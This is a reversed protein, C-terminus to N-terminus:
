PRWVMHSPPPWALTVMMSRRQDPCSGPRERPEGGGTPWGGEASRKQGVAEPRGDEALRRRGGPEPDGATEPPRRRPSDSKRNGPRAGIPSAASQARQYSPESPLPAQRRGPGDDDPTTRRQGDAEPRGDEALRRRGGPEPDGATEPPRRRPSDSKRNGPRAGVPSAASQARQWSPESPLPAQRRGPGDNDPTTRQGLGGAPRGRRGPGSGSDTRRGPAGGLGKRRGLGGTRTPGCDPTATRTRRGLGGATRTGGPRDAGPGRPSMSGDAGHAKRWAPWRKWCRRRM